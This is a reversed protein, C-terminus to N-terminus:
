LRRKRMRLGDGWFKFNYVNQITFHGAFWPSCTCVALVESPAHHPLFLHQPKWVSIPFWRFTSGEVTQLVHWIKWCDPATLLLFYGLPLYIRVLVPQYSNRRATTLWWIDSQCPNTLRLWSVTTESSTAIPTQAHASRWWLIQFQIGTCANQITCFYHGAFWPSCTRVALVESPAHHPLFLHQPKWVFLNPIM